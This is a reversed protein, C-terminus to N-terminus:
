KLEEIVFEDQNDYVGKGSDLYTKNFYHHMHLSFANKAAGPSSWGCKAGFKILKGSSLQRIVYVKTEEFQRSM